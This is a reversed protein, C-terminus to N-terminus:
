TGSSPIGPLPEPVAEVDLPGLNALVIRLDAVSLDTSFMVVTDGSSVVGWRTGDPEDAVAGTFGPVDLAEGEPPEICGVDMVDIWLFQGVPDDLNTYDVTASPCGGAAPDPTVYAGAMVWGEPIRSLGLPPPGEFAALDQENVWPTADLEAASPPAVEVDGGIRVIDYSAEVITDTASLVFEVRRPAGDSGLTAELDVDILTVEPGLANILRPPVGASIVRNGEGDEGEDHPDTAAELWAPLLSLALEGSAGGEVEAWPRAELQDPYATDRLWTQEAVDSGITIHEYTVGDSGTVRQRVADPLVVDGSMDRDVVISDDLTSPDPGELHSTAEYSFTGADTLARGATALADALEDDQASGDDGADAAVGPGDGDDDGSTLAVVAGVAVALAAVVGAAALGRRSRHPPPAMPPGTPQPFGSV